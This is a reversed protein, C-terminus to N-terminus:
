GKYGNKIIDIVDTVSLYGVPEGNNVADSMLELKYHEGGYTGTGIIVSYFRGQYTIHTRLIVFPTGDFQKNVSKDKWQIGDEDLIDRLTDVVEQANNVDFNEFGLMSVEGMDSRCTVVVKDETMSCSACGVCEMASPRIADRCIKHKIKSIFDLTM